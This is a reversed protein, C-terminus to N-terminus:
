REREGPMWIQLGMEISNAWCSDLPVPGVGFWLYSNNQKSESSAKFFLWTNIMNVYIIWKYWFMGLQIEFGM